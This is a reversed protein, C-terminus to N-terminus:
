GISIKKISKNVKNHNTSNYTKTTDRNEKDTSGCKSEKEGYTCFDEKSNGSRNQFKEQQRVKFYEMAIDSVNEKLEEVCAKMPSPMIEQLVEMELQKARIMKAVFEKNM